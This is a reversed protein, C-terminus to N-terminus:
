SSLLDGRRDNHAPDWDSHKANFDGAIIIEGDGSRISRELDSLFSEFDTIHINPSIYCSYIRIGRLRIWVYGQGPVGVEDPAEGNLLGIACDGRNDNYWSPISTNQESIIIVDSNVATQLLLQQAVKCRNLNIQLFRTM